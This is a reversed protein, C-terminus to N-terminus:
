KGKGEIIYLDVVFEHKKETHFSFMHPIVMKLAYVAKIKGDHRNIFNELFPSPSVPMIGTKSAKLEAIFAQDNHLSKHISYVVRGAELAKGLFARDANPKQVGFPPNQVVTDFEGCISDIDAAIWQTTGKLGSTVSNEQAVKIAVRDLDVGVVERAGLFAAGLALRGTGCGLDLVSKDTIDHNTYAAIYLITAAIDTPTMYQELRPNPSPHPKVQSIFLELDLKRLLRKQM